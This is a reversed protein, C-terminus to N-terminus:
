LVAAGVRDRRAVDIELAAHPIDEFLVIRLQKLGHDTAVRHATHPRRGLDRVGHYEEGARARAEDGARVQDDVARQGLSHLESQLESSYSLNRFECRKISLNLLNHCIHAASHWCLLPRQSNNRQLFLWTDNGAHVSRGSPRSQRWPNSAIEPSM